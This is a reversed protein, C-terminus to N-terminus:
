WETSSTQVPATDTTRKDSEDQKPKQNNNKSKLNNINEEIKEVFKNKKM